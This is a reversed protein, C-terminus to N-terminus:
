LSSQRCLGNKGLFSLLGMNDLYLKTALELLEKKQM